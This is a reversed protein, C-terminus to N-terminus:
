FQNCKLIFLNDTINVYAALRVDYINGNTGINDTTNFGLFPRNNMDEHRLILGTKDATGNKASSYRIAFATDESTNALNFSINHDLAGTFSTTNTVPVGLSESQSSNIVLVAGPQTELKIPGEAVYLTADELVAQVDYM